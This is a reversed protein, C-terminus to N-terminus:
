MYAATSSIACATPGTTLAWVRPVISSGSGNSGSSTIDSSSSKLDNLQEFRVPRRLRKGCEDVKLGKPTSCQSDRKVGKDQKPSSTLQRTQGSAASSCAEAAASEFRISQGTQSCQVFMGAGRTDLINRPAETTTSVHSSVTHSGQPCTTIRSAWSQISYSLSTGCCM